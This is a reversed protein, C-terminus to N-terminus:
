PSAAASTSHFLRCHSSIVERSVFFWANEFTFFVEDGPEDIAAFIELQPTFWLSSLDTESTANFPEIVFMRWRKAARNVQREM